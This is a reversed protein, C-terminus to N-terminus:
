NWVHNVVKQYEEIYRDDRMFTTNHYLLTCETGYRKAANVCEFMRHSFPSMEQHGGCGFDRSDMFILPREKLRLKKQALIDFVYFSAGTGCRFGEMDAYGCSSDVEMGNAEWIRWTYPVKFRLYHQRGEIIKCECIEELYMKEHHFLVENSYTNYSPHIGILHGRAKIREILIRVKPDDINYYNDFVTEGGSMFYFRSRVGAMESLDMLWDFTDYPDSRRKIKYSIYEAFRSLALIVDHRKFLDGLAIRSVHVINKWRYIEDVDHTLVLNFQRKKRVQRCGLKQLMAWLLEAYEDVIPRHLFNARYALSATAPFRDHTDSASVVYEEWRTLMFFASAFLDVGCVIYEREIEIHPEGFIVPIEGEPCFPHRLITIEKPVNDEHLYSKGEDFCSFFGDKLILCYGNPLFLETDQKDYHAEITYVVGLVEGLLHEIAYCREAEYNAPLTIHIM